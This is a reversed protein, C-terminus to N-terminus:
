RPSSLGGSVLERGAAAASAAPCVVQFIAEAIAGDLEASSGVRPLVPNLPMGQVDNAGTARVRLKVAHRDGEAPCYSDSPLILLHADGNDQRQALRSEIDASGLETGPRADLVEVQWEGVLLSTGGAARWGFEPPFPTSDGYVVSGTGNLWLSVGVVTGEGSGPRVIRGGRISSRSGAVGYTHVDVIAGGNGMMCGSDRTKWTEDEQKVPGCPVIDQEPQPIVHPLIGVRGTSLHTVYSATGTVNTEFLFGPGPNVPHVKRNGLVGKAMLPSIASGREDNIWYWGGDDVGRVELTGDTGEECFWDGTGFLLSVLGDPNVALDDEVHKSTTTGICALTAHVGGTANLARAVFGGGNRVLPVVHCEEEPCASSVTVTQARALTGSLAATCALTLATAAAQKLVRGPLARGPLAREPPPAHITVDMGSLSADRHSKRACSVREQAFLVIM